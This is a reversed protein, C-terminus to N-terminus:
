LYVHVPHFAHFYTHAVYNATTINTALLHGKVMESWICLLCLFCVISCVCVCLNTRGIGTVSIAVLRILQTLTEWLNIWLVFMMLTRYQNLCLTQLPRMSHYKSMLPTTWQYVDYQKRATIHPFTLWCSTDNKSGENKPYCNFTLTFIPYPCFFAAYLYM